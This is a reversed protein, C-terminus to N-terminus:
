ATRGVDTFALSSGVLSRVRLEDIGLGVIPGTLLGAVEGVHSPVFLTRILTVVPLRLVLDGMLLGVLPGLAAGLWEM